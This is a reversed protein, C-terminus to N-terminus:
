NYEKENSEEQNEYYKRYLLSDRLLTNHKGEAVIYGGDMVYIQDCDMINNLRHSIIILTINTDKKLAEIIKSESIIDM